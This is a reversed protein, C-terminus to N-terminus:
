NCVFLLYDNLIKGIKFDVSLYTKHYEVHKWKTVVVPIGSIYADLISGPLGETYFHTPLAMVDYRELTNYIDKPELPGLYRMFRYKKINENFYEEDNDWNMLPGYFDISIQQELSSKIIEDGMAFITDLGKQKLIRAM